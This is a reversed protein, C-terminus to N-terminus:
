ARFTHVSDRIFTKVQPEDFYVAPGDYFEGGEQVTHLVLMAVASVSLM